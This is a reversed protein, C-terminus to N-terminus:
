TPDRHPERKARNRQTRRLNRASEQSRKHRLRCTPARCTAARRNYGVRDIVKGCYPCNDPLGEASLARRRAADRLRELIPRLTAPHEIGLHGALFSVSAGPYEHMAARARAELDKDM